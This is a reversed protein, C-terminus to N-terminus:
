NKYILTDPHFASWAFWFLTTAPLVKENEDMIVASDSDRKYQIIIDKGNVSDKLASNLKRLASFPYAKSVSNITIGLVKEKKPLTSNENKVPFYLRESKEYGAYPSRSYDRDFGTKTNLVLSNPYRSKWDFWTIREMAILEFEKGVSIGSVAKGILQSWLSETQRDYLLVDSNYLLGSVGFTFETNDIRGFFAVGSGCLPCYTIIVSQEKFTDNVVEHYNLINIPYAKALGNLYIALVEDNNELFQVTSAEVFKPNDIAPIGDKAPGGHYVEGKPITINSLDFGNMNNSANNIQASLTLGCLIYM